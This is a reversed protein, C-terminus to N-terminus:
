NGGKRSEIFARIQQDLQVTEHRDLMYPAQTIILDQVDPPLADWQYIVACAIRRLLHEDSDDYKISAGRIEAM